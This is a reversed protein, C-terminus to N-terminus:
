ELGAIREARDREMGNSALSGYARARGAIDAAGLDRLSLTVDRELVRSLEGEIRTALPKVSVHYWRRFAERAGSGGGPSIFLLEAPVGAASATSEELQRRLQGLSQPADFGLRQWREAEAMGNYDKPSDLLIAGGTARSLAAVVASRVNAPMARPVSAVRAAPSAGEAAAALELMWLAKLTDSNAWPGVGRWPEIATSDWVLHAVGDRPVTQVTSGSPGSMDLRYRWSEPEPSGTVDWASAQLLTVNGGRMDLKHLSEGRFLMTRVALGLWDASLSVGEFSAGALASAYLSAVARCVALREPQAVRGAAQAEIQQLALQTASDQRTEGRQWPRWNM